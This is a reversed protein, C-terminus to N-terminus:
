SRKWRSWIYDLCARLMKKARYVLTHVNAESVNLRASVERGSLGDVETYKFAEMMRSPLTDSCKLFAAYLKKRDYEWEPSVQWAVPFLSDDLVWQADKGENKRLMDRFTKEDANRRYHDILKFKLIGTLWTKPSSNGKFSQRSNWAALFTEQTLDEATELSGVRSHAFRLLYEGYNDIWLRPEAELTKAAGSDDLNIKKTM